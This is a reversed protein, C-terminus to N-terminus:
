SVFSTFSLEQNQLLLHKITYAQYQSQIISLLNIIEQKEGNLYATVNINYDSSSNIPITLNIENLLLSIYELHNYEIETEKLATSPIKSNFISQIFLTLTPIDQFRQITAISFHLNIWNLLCQEKISNCTLPPAITPSEATEMTTINSSTNPIDIQTAM